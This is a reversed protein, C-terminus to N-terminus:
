REGYPRGGQFIQHAMGRLARTATTVFLWLDTRPSMREVYMIRLRNKHQLVEREYAADADGSGVVQDLHIYEISSFDTIGPRVHLIFEELGSYRETYRPLEPRPGIFCMEGRLINLLQPFEDLKTRRLFRGARTIRPDGLATTGGGIQDADRVMTRFKYIRFTTGRFGGREARYLVPFGSDVVILLSIIVLVPFLLVLLPVALVFGIVPKVYVNYLGASQRRLHHESPAFREWEKVGEMM